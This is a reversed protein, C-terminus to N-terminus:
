VALFHYLLSVVKARLRTSNGNQQAMERESTEVDLLFRNMNNVSTEHFLTTGGQSSQFGRKFNSVM